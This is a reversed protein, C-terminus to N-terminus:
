SDKQGAHVAGTLYADYLIRLTADSWETDPALRRADALAALPGHGTVDAVVAGNLYV